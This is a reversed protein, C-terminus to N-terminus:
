RNRDNPMSNFLGLLHNRYRQLRGMVNSFFGPTSSRTKPTAQDGDASTLPFYVTRDFGLALTVDDGSGSNTSELAWSELLPRLENISINPLIKSVDYLASVFGDDTAFSNSYGDTCLLIICPSQSDLKIYGFRFREAAAKMCLSYTENAMQSSDSEVLRGSEGQATCCLIDGDGLQLACAFSKFIVAALITSGYARVNLPHAEDNSPNEEMHKNVRRNWESVIRRSIRSENQWRKDAPLDIQNICTDVGWMDSLVECAVDVAFQAGIESRFHAASGHGDAVAIVLPVDVGNGNNSKVRDQNVQGKRIHSAGTVSITECTWM